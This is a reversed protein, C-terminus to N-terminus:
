AQITVAVTDWYGDQSNYVCGVYTVKGTTTTAPLTVGIARYGGAGTSWTISRAGGGDDKFRLLLRQGDVPSGSPNQIAVSSYLGVINYQDVSDSPPTINGAGGSNGTRALSLNGIPGRSGTYGFSGVYGRSGTYGSPLANFNTTILDSTRQVM